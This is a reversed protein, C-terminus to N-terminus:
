RDECGNTSEQEKGLQGRGLLPVNHDAAARKQRRGVVRRKRGRLLAPGIEVDIAVHDHLAAVAKLDSGGPPGTLAAIGPLVAYVVAGDQRVKVCEELGM